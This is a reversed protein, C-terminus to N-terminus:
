SGNGPNNTGLRTIAMLIYVIRVQEVTAGANGGRKPPPSKKRWVRYEVKLSLSIFADSLHDNSFLNPDLDVLPEVQCRIKLQDLVLLHAVVKSDNGADPEDDVESAPCSQIFVVMLFLVM